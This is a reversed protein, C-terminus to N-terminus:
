SKAVYQWAAHVFSRAEERTWRQTVYFLLKVENVELWRAECSVDETDEWIHALVARVRGAWRYGTFCTNPCNYVLCEILYSAVEPSAGDIVMRNELNKLIRVVRKFARGTANNKAVGNALQQAPYNYIPLAPRDPLLRIGEAYRQPTWFHRHTACPVVDAALSRGSERVTFVKNHREVAANGFARELARGVADKFEGIQTNGVSDRFRGTYPGLGQALDVLESSTESDYTPYLIGTYEVAVDVDSDRRVNTNNKYSGKAYVDIPLTKLLPDGAIAERIMRETNRAKEDENDFARSTWSSLQQESITPV